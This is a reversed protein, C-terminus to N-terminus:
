LSATSRITPASVPDTGNLTRGDSEYTMSVMVPLDCLEKVAILAARAEQIDLMTEIVFGEVGAELLAGAQESYVSVAEEFPMDGFPEVFRGTPALDGFVFAGASSEISLEALFRNIEYLREALGFEALKIRNAGFTPAYIIRSGAAAYKSQLDKVAHPNEMCWLEPCVSKPMNRKVLETGTAGDLVLLGENILEAFEKKNM